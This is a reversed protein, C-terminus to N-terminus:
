RQSPDEPKSGNERSQPTRTFMEILYDHVCDISSASFPGPFQPHDLDRPHMEFYYTHIPVPPEKFRIIVQVGDGSPEAGFELLPHEYLKLQESCGSCDHTKPLNQPAPEMSQSQLAKAPDPIDSVVVVAMGMRRGVELATALTDEDTEDARVVEM